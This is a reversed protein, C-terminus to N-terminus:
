KIWQEKNTKSQKTATKERYFRFTQSTFPFYWALIFRFFVFFPARHVIHSSFPFHWLFSITKKLFILMSCDWRCHGANHLVGSMTQAISVSEVWSLHFRSQEIKHLVFVFTSSLYILNWTYQVVLLFYFLSAEIKKQVEKREDRRNM